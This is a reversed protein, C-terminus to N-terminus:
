SHHDVVFTKMLHEPINIDFVDSAFKIVEEKEEKTFETVEVPSDFYSGDYRDQTQKLLKGIICYDGGMGDFLVGVVGDMKGKVTRWSFYHNKDYYETLKTYFDENDEELKKLDFKIGKIIYTAQQISM